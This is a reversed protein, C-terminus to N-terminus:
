RTNSYVNFVLEGRSHDTQWQLKCVKVNYRFDAGFAHVQVELPGDADNDMKHQVIGHEDTSYNKGDVVM